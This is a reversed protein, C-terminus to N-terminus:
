RDEPENELVIGHLVILREATEPWEERPLGDMELAFRISELPLARSMGSMQGYLWRGYLSLLGANAPQVSELREFRLLKGQRVWLPV